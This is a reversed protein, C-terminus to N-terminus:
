ISYQLYFRFRGEDSSDASKEVAGPSGNELPRVVCGSYEAGIAFPSPLRLGLGIGWRLVVAYDGEAREDLRESASAEFLAIKGLRFQAELGANLAEWTDFDETEYPLEYSLALLWDARQFRESAKGHPYVGGIGLEVTGAKPYSDGDVRRSWDWGYGVFVLSKGWFGFDFSQTFATENGGSSSPRLDTLGYNARSRLWIGGRGGFAFAGEVQAQAEFPSSEFGKEGTCLAFPLYARLSAYERPEHLLIWRLAAARSARAAAPDRIERDVSKFATVLSADASSLCRSAFDLKDRAFGGEGQPLSARAREARALADAVSRREAEIRDRLPSLREPGSASPDSLLESEEDLLAEAADAAAIAEDAVQGAAQASEDAALAAEAKKVRAIGSEAEELISALGKKLELATRKGESSFIGPDSLPGLLDLASRCGDAAMGYQGLAAGLEAETEAQAAASRRSEAENSAAEAKDLLATAAALYSGRQVIRVSEDDVRLEVLATYSSGEQSSELLTFSLSEPPSAVFVEAFLADLGLASFLGHLAAGRAAAEAEQASSGSGRATSVYLPGETRFGEASTPDAAFLACPAVAAVSLLAAVFLGRAGSRM